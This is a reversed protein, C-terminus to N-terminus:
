PELIKKFGNDFLYVKNIYFLEGNEYVIASSAPVAYIKQNKSLFELTNENEPLYHAKFNIDALGLGKILTVKKSHRYTIVCKKCLALAGASRGVIIGSYNRLMDDVGIKKLREILATVLGGTLYILNSAEIKQAIIEKPESYDIFDIHGAGLSILYDVLKQRRLYSRDFSARAWTFVLVVPNNGADYFARENVQRASRKFVNEGGLLYLKPM